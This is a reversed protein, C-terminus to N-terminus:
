VGLETWLWISKKKKKKKINKECTLGRAQQLESNGESFYTTKYPIPLVEEIPSRGIAIPFDRGVLLLIFVSSVWTHKWERLPIPVWRVTLTSPCIDNQGQINLHWNIIINLSFSIIFQSSVKIIQMM